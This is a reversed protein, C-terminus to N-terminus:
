TYEQEQYMEILLEERLERLIEHLEVWEDTGPCTEPLIESSLVVGRGINASQAGIQSVCGMIVDDVHTGDVGLKNLLGDVVLGGLQAPHMKSLSGNRKGSASRVAGAIYAKM